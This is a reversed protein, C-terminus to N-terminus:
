GRKADPVHSQRLAALDLKSESALAVYRVLHPQACRANRAHYPGAAVTRAPVQELELILLTDHAVDGCLV